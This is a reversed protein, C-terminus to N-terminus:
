SDTVPYCPFFDSFCRSSTAPLTFSKGGRRWLFPRFDNKMSNEDQQRYAKIVAERSQRRGYGIDTAFRKPGSFRFIRV